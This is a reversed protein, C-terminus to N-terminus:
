LISYIDRTNRGYGDYDLGYGVIFDDPINKAVYKLDLDVQLKGPKCLLTCISLSAPKRSGLAEITQKMTLGTDVIDEVIIVHRDKISEALGIVEKITGSSSTGEYSAMKVFSIKCPITICKMLDSAFMFSGNLISLFLPEKGEFDRNIESAVRSIEKLIQEESLFLKFQKDKVQIIDM